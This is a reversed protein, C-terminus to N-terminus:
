YGWTMLAWRGGDNRVLVWQWNAYTSNPNLSGDGGLSDTDFSSFLVIAEDAGYQEAFEKGLELSRSEDYELETMTCGAFELMFNRTVADMADTIEEETYLESEGVIRECDKVQGGWMPMLLLMSVALLALVIAVKGFKM